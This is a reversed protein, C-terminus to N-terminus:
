IAENTPPLTGTVQEFMTTFLDCVKGFSSTLESEFFQRVLEIELVARL